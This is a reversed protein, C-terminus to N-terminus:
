ARDDRVGRDPATTGAPADGADSPGAAGKFLARRRLYAGGRVRMEIEDTDTDQLRAFRVWLVGVERALDALRRTMAAGGSM